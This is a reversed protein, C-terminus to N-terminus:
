FSRVPNQDVNRLDKEDVWSSSPLWGVRVMPWRIKIKWRPPLSQWVGSILHGPWRTWMWGSEMQKVLVVFYAFIILARPEREELLKLYQDSVQYLWAFIVHASGRFSRDRESFVLSYCSKLLRFAELYSQRGPDQSIVYEELFGQLEELGESAFPLAGDTDVAELDVESLIFALAWEDDERDLLDRTDQISRMGRFFVIWDSPAANDNFLLFKGEQPGVAITHLCTITAFLYHAAYSDSNMELLRPTALRLAAEWHRTAQAGYWLPRPCLRQKEIHDLHLGAIALIAHLLFPHKFSLQPVTMNWFAQKEKDPTFSPATFSCFHHFLQFDQVELSAHRVEVPLSSTPTADPHESSDNKVNYQDVYSIYVCRLSRKACQTCAPRKEDCKIKRRKCFVCGLRSKRHSRRNRRAQPDSVSHEVSM